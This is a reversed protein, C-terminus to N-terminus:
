PGRMRRFTLNVRAATSRVRVPVRHQFFRQVKGAMVLLSDHELRIRLVIERPDRRRLQFERAEGLSLSAIPADAVLDAEDDAHWGLAALGDPYLNCLVFAYRCGVTREVVERAPQLWEPWAHADQRLGSYRYVAGPDGFACSQRRVRRPKGFMVPAEATFPADARLRAFLAAAAVAGLLGEGHLVRSDTAPDGFVERLEMGTSLTGRALRVRFARHRRCPVARLAAAIM